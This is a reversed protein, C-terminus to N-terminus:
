TRIVVGLVFLTAFSSIRDINSGNFIDDEEDAGTAVCDAVTTETIISVGAEV